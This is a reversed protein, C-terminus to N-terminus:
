LRSIESVAQDLITDYMKLAESCTQLSRQSAMADTMEETMDTNSLEVCKWQVDPSAVPAAGTGTFLGYGSTSLNATDAFDYVALRGAFRSGVFLGGQGDATVNDTDLRIAGGNQGLVRGVGKLVLYGDSDVNFSGNRTYVTGGTGQVAFFGNGEIAFDLSRGTEKRDGQSFDTAPATPADMLTANGVATKRGDSRNVVMSGFAQEAVRSEKFGNTNVNAINNGITNLKRSQTLIGSGLDYFGRVM